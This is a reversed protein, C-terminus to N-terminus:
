NLRPKEFIYLSNYITGRDRKMSSPTGSMEYELIGFKKAIKIIDEELLPLSNEQDMNKISICKSFEKSDETVIMSYNKYSYAGIFKVGMGKYMEQLLLNNKTNEKFETKLHRM